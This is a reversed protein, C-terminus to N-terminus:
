SFISCNELSLYKCDQGTSMFNLRALGSFYTLIPQSLHSQFGRLSGCRRWQYLLALLHQVNGDPMRHSEKPDGFMRPYLSIFNSFLEWSLNSNVLKNSRFRGQPDTPLIYSFLDFAPHVVLMHCHRILVWFCARFSIESGLGGLSWAVTRQCSM